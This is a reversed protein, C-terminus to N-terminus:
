LKQGDFTGPATTPRTPYKEVPKGNLSQRKALEKEQILPLNAM